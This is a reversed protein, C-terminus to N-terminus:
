LATNILDGVASATYTASLCTLDLTTFDYM